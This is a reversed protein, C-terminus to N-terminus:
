KSLTCYLPTLLVCTLAYKDRYVAKNNLGTLKNINLTNRPPKGWSVALAYLCFRVRGKLM